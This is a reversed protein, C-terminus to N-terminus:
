SHRRFARAVVKLHADQVSIIRFISNNGNKLQFIIGINNNSHIILRKFYLDARHNLIFLYIASIQHYIACLQMLILGPLLTSGKKSM